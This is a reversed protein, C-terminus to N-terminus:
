PTFALDYPVGDAATVPLFDPVTRKVATRLRRLATNSPLPEIGLTTLLGRHLEAFDPLDEEVMARLEGPEMGEALDQWYPFSAILSVAEVLDAGILAARGESDAYLVPRPETGPEGCLFYTGGGGCGAVPELPNGNPLRMEEVPDLRTIDFDGPWELYGSLAPDSRIRALLADSANM